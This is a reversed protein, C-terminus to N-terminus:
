QGRLYPAASASDVEPVLGQRNGTSHLIPSRSSLSLFLCHAPTLPPTKLLHMRALLFLNVAATIRTNQEHKRCVFQRAVWQLLGLGQSFARLRKPRCYRLPVHPLASCNSATVWIVTRTCHLTLEVQTELLEACKTADKANSQMYAAAERVEKEGGYEAAVDLLRLLVSSNYAPDGGQQQDSGPVCYEVLPLTPSDPMWDVGDGFDDLFDAASGEGRSANSFPNSPDM